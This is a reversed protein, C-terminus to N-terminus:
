ILLLMVGALVVDLYLPRLSLGLKRAISWYSLYYRFGLAVATGVVIAQETRFSWYLLSILVVALLFSVGNVRLMENEARLVKYYNTIVLDMRAQFLIIVFLLPLYAVGAAYAPFYAVILWKVPFLLSLGLLTLGNVFWSSRAFLLRKGAPDRRALLPYVALGVAGTFLLVVNTTSLNFSYTAYAEITGYRELLMRGYGVILVGSLASVMLKVGVGANARFARRTEALTGAEGFVLERCARTAFLLLVLKVGMELVILLEFARVDLLLVGGLLVLTLLKEALLYYSYRKMQNTIQFIANYVSMVGTLPISLLVCVFAFSKAPDNPALLFIALLGLTLAFQTLLYFRIGARLEQKPLEAYDYSAYKLYIGETFGFSFLWIYSVYLGYVQWYGYDSIGLFLPLVLVKVMSLALSALQATTVYTINALLVSSFPRRM